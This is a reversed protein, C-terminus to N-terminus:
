DAQGATVNDVQNIALPKLTGFEITKVHQVRQVCVMEMKTLTWKIPSSTYENHNRKRTRYIDPSHLNCKSFALIQATNENLGGEIDSISANVLQPAITFNPTM